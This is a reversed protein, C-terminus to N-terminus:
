VSSLGRAPDPEAQVTTLYTSKTFGDAPGAILAVLLARVTMFRNFGYLSASLRTDRLLELATPTVAVNAEWWNRLGCDRDARPM